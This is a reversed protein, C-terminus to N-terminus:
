FNLWALAILLLIGLIAFTLASAEVRRIWALLHEAEAEAKAINGVESDINAGESALWENPDIREGTELSYGGVATLYDRKAVNVEHMAKLVMKEHASLAYFPYRWNRYMASIMTLVLSILAARLLWPPRLSTSHSGVFSVIVAITAASGLAIKEFYQTREEIIKVSTTQRLEVVTSYHSAARDFLAKLRQSELPDRGNM